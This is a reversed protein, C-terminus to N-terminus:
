TKLLSNGPPGTTLVGHEAHWPGLNLGQDTVLIRCVVHHPWPCPSDPPTKVLSREKCSITFLNYKLWSYRHNLLEVEYRYIGSCFVQRGLSWNGQKCFPSSFYNDGRLTPHLNFPLAPSSPTGPAQCLSFGCFLDAVAPLVNKVTAQKKNLLLNKTIM